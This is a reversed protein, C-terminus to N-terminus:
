SKRSLYILPDEPKGAYGIQFHLKDGNLSGIKEGKKIRNGESVKINKLNSYITLYKNKHKVIIYNGFGRMHGVKTIIGEASSFVSTDRKGTIIIGISKVGELGDRRTGYIKKLPWIFDPNEKKNNKKTNNNSNQHNRSDPIKLCMGAFIKNRNELKNFRAIEAATTNFKRSIKFLTDGKRVIYTKIKKTPKKRKSYNNYKKVKKNYHIKNDKKFNSKNRKSNSYKEYSSFSNNEKKDFFSFNQDNYNSNQSQKNNNITKHRKIYTSSPACCLFLFTICLLLLIYKHNFM